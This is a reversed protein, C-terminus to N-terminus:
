RVAHEESQGALGVCQLIFSLVVAEDHWADYRGSPGGHGAGMETKLLIPAAATTHARLRQVWKAPEWYSVRPDNLGATVLMPPYPASRVNEYPAYSKMYAYYAADAPNGWEEWEIATLPLSADLMTNVVDVFPVEAVIGAFLDPRLNVVAGMLLGGASGGRAVLRDRAVYGNTMLHEACAVFDTFTNRKHLFKGGLYWRRGMEGGGRIHAIAFVVDRDLLSIRLSSFTPDISIEYSGYGYLLGACTGDLPTNRRRVISIPIHTGDETTAWERTSVYDESQFLGLVPQRKRLIREGTRLDQDYVSSPTVMSTYGFRLMPADLEANGMGWVSHVADEHELVRSPGISGDPGLEVIRIREMGASREYLVLHSRFVDIADLKPRSTAAAEGIVSDPEWEPAAATWAATGDPEGVCLRFNEAGDNTIVFMRQSGDVSRHHEIGYEINQRRPAILLLDAYPDDARLVHVETTVQSGITLVILEETTSTAVGIYFREDDEQFVLVDDTPDTGIVHRMLQWPRMADDLVTYFLVNSDSSWAVGGATGQIAEAMDEATALDRVHLEYIEDGDTDFAYALRAHAHDIEFTGLAFYDHGDALVNEDLLLTEDLLGTENRAGEAGEAGEAFADAAPRRCHRAYQKGEETRAYYAWRGKVTPVSLDTELIRSKIENFLTDQLGALPELMAKAYTNEAELHAIVAPDEQNRLWAYEDTRTDGHLTTAVPMPAAIPPVPLSPPTPTADSM